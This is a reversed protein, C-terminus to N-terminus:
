NIDDWDVVAEELEETSKSSDCKEMLEQYYAKKNENILDDVNVQEKAEAVEQAVDDQEITEYGNIVIDTNWKKYGNADIWSSMSLTFTGNIDIVDGPNLSEIVATSFSKFSFNLKNNLKLKGFIVKRSEPIKVELIECRNFQQKTSGIYPM